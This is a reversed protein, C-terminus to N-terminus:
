RSPIALLRYFRQRSFIPDTVVLNSDASQAPINTLTQWDSTSLSSLYQVMYSQQALANFGLVFANTSIAFRNIKPPQATSPPTFGIVLSPANSPDERSSFHTVTQPLNEADSILIWGYNEAPHQLWFQVDAVLNSTSAFTFHGEGNIFVSAGLAPAFDGPAAAGPASWSGAAEFAFRDNWTAEGPAAPAGHVGNKNGEGWPQLIRFLRYNSPSGGSPQRTSTLILTVSDVSAGAPLVAAVDFKILARSRLLAATSGSTLDTAGLNNDPYTEFLTTDASPQNTVTDAHVHQAILLSASVIGTCLLSLLKAKVPALGLSSRNILHVM